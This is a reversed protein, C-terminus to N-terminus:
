TRTPVQARSTTTRRRPTGVSRSSSVAISLRWSRPASSRGIGKTAKQYFDYAGHCPRPRHDRHGSHRAPARRSCTMLRAAGDLMSYETHVHLHAFGGHRGRAATSAPFAM